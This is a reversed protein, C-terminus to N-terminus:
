GTAEDRYKAILTNPIEIDLLPDFAEIPLFKRNPNPGSGGQSPLSKKSLNCEALMKERFESTMLESGLKKKFYESGGKKFVASTPRESSAFASQGETETRITKLQQVSDSYKLM